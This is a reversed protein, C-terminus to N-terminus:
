RSSRERLRQVGPDPRPILRVEHRPKGDDREVLSVAPEGSVLRVRPPRPRILRRALRWGGVALILVAAVGLIWTLLSPGPSGVILTASQQVPESGKCRQCAIVTYTGDPIEPVVVPEKFTTDAEVRVVADPREPSSPDIFIRVRGGEPDWGEGVAEISEGPTASSPRLQFTPQSGSQITLSATRVIEISEGCRQCARIVHPGLTLDSTQLEVEFNGNADATVSDFPEDSPADPLEVFLSIAGQEPDWREGSVFVTTGPLVTDPDVSITPDFAGGLVTFFSEPKEADADSCPQCARVTYDGGTTPAAVTGDIRWNAEITPFETFPQADSGGPPVLEIEVDGNEPYWGAGTVTLQEGPGVTRPTVVISPDCPASARGLICTDVGDGGYLQDDNEGGDLVDDGPGGLLRDNDDDGGLRDNAAGGSLTDVGDSGFLEVSTSAASADLIDDGGNGIVRRQISGTTTGQEGGNLTFAGNALTVVDDGDGASIVLTDGPDSLDISWRISTAFEGGVLNDITFTEGEGSDSASVVIATTNSNTAAGCQTEGVDGDYGAGNRNILVSGPPADSEPVGDTSNVALGASQGPDIQVNITGTALSFSCDTVATARPAGATAVLQLTALGVLATVAARRRHVPKM